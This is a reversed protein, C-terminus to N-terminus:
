RTLVASSGFVLMAEVATLTQYPNSAIDSLGDNRTSARRRALYNWPPCGIRTSVGIYAASAEQKLAM